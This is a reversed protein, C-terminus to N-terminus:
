RWKRLHVVSSVRSQLARKQTCPLPYVVGLLTLMAAEPSPAASIPSTSFIAFFVTCFTLVFSTLALALPQRAYIQAAKLLKKKCIWGMIEQM